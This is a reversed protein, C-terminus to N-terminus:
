RYPSAVGSNLTWTGSLKVVSTRVTGRTVASRLTKYGLWLFYYGGLIKLMVM